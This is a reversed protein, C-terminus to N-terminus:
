ITPAARPRPFACSRRAGIVRAQYWLGRSILRLSPANNWIQLEPQTSLYVRDVWSQDRLVVGPGQNTVGWAIEFGPNVPGALQAPCKIAIPALDPPVIKLTLPQVVLNNSFDSEYLYHDANAHFMLFYNGSEVVPIIISNTRWYSGAADLPGPEYNSTLMRAQSDFTGNTSLYVFIM